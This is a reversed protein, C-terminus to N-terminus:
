YRMGQWLLLDRVLLQTDAARGQILVAWRLSPDMRVPAPLRDVEQNDILLRANGDPALVIVLHRWGDSPFLDPRSQRGSEVQWTDFSFSTSDFLDLEGVPHSFCVRDLDRDLAQRLGIQSDQNHVQTLCVRVSQRDRRRRLPLRYSLELTAGASLDFRRRSIIGDTGVGDGRLDLAPGDALQM